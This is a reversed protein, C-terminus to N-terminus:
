HAPLVVGEIKKYDAEDKLSIYDVTMDDIFIPLYRAPNYFYVKAVADKPLDAPIYFAVQVKV